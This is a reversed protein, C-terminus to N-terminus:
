PGTGAIKNVFDQFNNEYTNEVKFERPIIQDDGSTDM